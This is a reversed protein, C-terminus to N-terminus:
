RQKEMPVEDHHDLIGHRIHAIQRHFRGYCGCGIGLAMVRFGIGVSLITNEIKIDDPLTADRVDLAICRTPELCWFCMGLKDHVAGKIYGDDVKDYKRVTM